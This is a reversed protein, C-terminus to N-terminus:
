CSGSVEKGALHVLVAPDPLDFPPDGRDLLHDLAGWAMGAEGAFSPSVPDPPWAAM